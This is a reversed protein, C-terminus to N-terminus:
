RGGYRSAVARMERQAAALAEGPSSRGSLAASLHRQLIESLQTYYPLIPRPRANEFVPRLARFHPMRALVDPDEYVDRRGPNWGLRLALKKQVEYSTLFCLLRVSEPKADSTRSIGAHWGGLTSVSRGPTFSPVPAIATKGRVPSGQAEHLAWAYPWNREFLANGGQFFLRAEEEKMETYTNPPSIGHRLILDRMFALAKRNGPTDVAVDGGKGTFGGDRGAFELFSCILGEYQAGQWVFAFFGPTARREGEQVKKAHRLLEDWTRPPGGLGYKQLLDSRYYLLGGDVFVPLAILEGGYTDALTLIRPFFADRDGCGGKAFTPDLPELWRSAAFQAIWAVDMLFVDPDSKGASLPVVLSQRRLGTDMPQRLLEVDIGTGAEFERVLEEWFDFDASAGGVAFTVTKAEAAVGGTPAITLWAALLALLANRAKIADGQKSKGSNTDL